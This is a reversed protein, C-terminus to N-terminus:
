EEAYQIRLVSESNEPWPMTYGGKERGVGRKGRDM